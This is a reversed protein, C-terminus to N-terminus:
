QGLNVRVRQGVRLPPRDAPAPDAVEVVVEIVRTDGSYFSEANARKLLFTNSIRRVTGKYTLKTDTHDYITVQHGIRDPGVRHAFDAEVEGRVVRPGAPILWLAPTRTAVGLTAGPGITVQEITGPMQAKVVCLDVAAQAKAQEAKAYDVAAEAEKVKVQPDAAILQDRRQEALKKEHVATDYDVNAKYLDASSKKLEKWTDPAHGQAKYSIELNANVLEHYQKTLSCKRDAAEVANEAIKINQDHQKVLEEAVAVAAEARAVAAKASALNAKPITDDFAYLAHKNARIMELTIEDGDKVFVQSVTGSQLIPPLGYEVKQPDTDVTGMVVPGSSASRPANDSKSKDGKDAASGGTLTRAGILMGTCLALGVIFFVLRTKRLWRM